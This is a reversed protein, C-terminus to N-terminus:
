GLKVYKSSVWGILQGVRVAYWGGSAIPKGKSDFVPVLKENKAAERLVTYGSGAGSRIALTSSTVTLRAATSTDAKATGTFFSLAKGGNLLNLDVNGEIGPVYGKSTYQWLDCDYIPQYQSKATADDKGYRPVWLFDIENALSTTYPYRDQSIYLGCTDAGLARLTKIFTDTVTKTTASTQAKYEIDAVFFRPAIGSATACQYFYQAEKAAEAATGAKVYHYAGFPINCNTANYVYKTDTSSGCSARLITFDLIEGAAGWDITGNYHSLDAILDQKETTRVSEVPDAAQQEPALTTEPVPTPAPTPAPTPTPAPLAAVVKIKVKATKGTNTRVTITCTGKKVPTVVGYKSVKAIKKSSTKWTLPSVATAPALTAALCLRTGLPVKVTGSYNLKVATAKRPDYVKVTLTATRTTRGKKVKVTITATGAKKATVVGYKSITAVKKRSSKVSSVKWGASLANYATLQLKAGIALKFTGNKGTKLEHSPTANAAAAAAMVEPAAAPTPEPTATPEESPAAVPTPEPTATPAESPVAEPTPEPTPAEEPAPTAEGAPQEAEAPVEADAAPAEEQPAPAEDETGLAETTPAPEVPAADPAEPVEENQAEAPAEVPAPAPAPAPEPEVPAPAPEAHVPAEEVAAPEPAPAASVAEEEAFAYTGLLTFLCLALALVRKAKLKAKM